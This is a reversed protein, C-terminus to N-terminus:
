LALLDQLQYIVQDTTNQNAAIATTDAENSQNVDGNNSNKSFVAVPAYVNVQNTEASANADQDTSNDNEAEQSQSVAGGSGCKRCADGDGLDAEQDQQISQDTENDNVAVATTDADNSQEVDGNNSDKSLVTVPAYVNLQNTEAAADADQNTQNSNTAQQVQDTISGLDAAVDASAVGAMLIVAGSALTATALVRKLWHYM